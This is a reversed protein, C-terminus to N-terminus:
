IPPKNNRQIKKPLKRWKDFAKSPPDDEYLSRRRPELNNETKGVFSAATLISHGARRAAKFVMNSDEKWNDARLLHHDLIVTPVKEVLRGANNMAHELVSPSIRYDLLYLPPGGLYVLNPHEAILTDL